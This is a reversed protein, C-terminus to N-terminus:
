RLESCRRVAQDTVIFDMLIDHPETPVNQLIQSEFCIAVKLIDSHQSFWRDYYGAGYGLRAGEVTFALGPVIAVDIPLPYPSNNPSTFIGMTGEELIELESIEVAIMDTKNIIKPCSLHCNPRQLLYRVMTWTSAESKTSLYSFVSSFDHKELWGILRESLAQDLKNKHTISARASLCDSRLAKKTTVNPM